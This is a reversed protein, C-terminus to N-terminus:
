ETRPGRHATALLFGRQKSNMWFRLFNRSNLWCIVSLLFLGGAIWVGHHAVGDVVADVSNHIGLLREAIWGLSAFGAFLAGGIRLFSYARTRSILVLSPMTVAVVILQMTEIGLNFALIGAVREWRDLGLEGLTAAFALGHILGFFAAIFAERGPFLPRLAHVASVLISLAILVEIPRGPVRVLGLAALALTVSHGITFATVVKLIRLLSQRAGAFGAWRSGLVLLPAPLLLALLFLLHDTGEAIHRMGLRFISAFGVGGTRGRFASWANWSGSLSSNGVQAFDLQYFSQNENRNQAVIRIDPDRPVLCNMLYVSIENRHHNELVIRREPGGRALEVTFEIQIEGLGAKIEDISPFKQSVLAPSARKGDVTISLDRLVREAYIRQEAESITGDGDTDISALVNSAVAVGPILRMSAQVHDKEVSLIIAQLYEHLRHAFVGAGLMLLIAAAAVFKTKM